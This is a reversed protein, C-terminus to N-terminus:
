AGTFIAKVVDRGLGRARAASLNPAYALVVVIRPGSRAYVIAATLRADHIWGNKQAVPTGAPVFPRVLGINDGRPQSALLLRLGYQSRAADLGTARLAPGNGLAGAHLVYLLRGLDRATTVRGSVLPPQRVVDARATGVRYGQPYTSHWAGARRLAGQVAAVGWRELLRNAALNSSWGTLARLDYDLPSREPRRLRALTALLVGLKVTSAAPFRADSNWGAARGTRLDHTWIAAYGPFASGLAAFRAALRVDTAGPAAAGVLPPPAPLKPQRRSLTVAKEGARCSGRVGGAATTAQKQGAGELIGRLKDYGEAWRVLGRGLVLAQGLSSPCGRRAAYVADELDRGADYRAQMGESTRPFSVAARARDLTSDFSGVAATPAALAAIGLFLALSQRALRAIVPLRVGESPPDRPEAATNAQGDEIVHNGHLEPLLRPRV